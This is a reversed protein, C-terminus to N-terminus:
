SSTTLLVQRGRDHLTEWNVRHGSREHWPSIAFSITMALAGVNAQNYGNRRRIKIASLDSRAASHLLGRRILASIDEGRIELTLCRMGDKRRQRSLQARISGPKLQRPPSAAPERLAEQVEIAGEPAGLPADTYDTM